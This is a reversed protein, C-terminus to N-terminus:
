RRRASRARRGYLPKGADKSAYPGEAQRGFHTTINSAVRYPNIVAQGNPNPVGRGSTPASTGFVVGRDRRVRGRAM